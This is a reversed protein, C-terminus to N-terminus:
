RVGEGFFAAETMACLAHYVAIHREQIEMVGQGPVCVTVDCLEALKGGSEGTLGITSLGLSRAVRVANLVNPSNGSTSVAILTDCHTGYGYVQQAYVMEASVDNAIASILASQSSLSIAPLAGQLREALFIGDQGYAEILRARLKDSIPRPQLFGKMLEGVIHDSDAASGGNGCVLLKGRQRYSHCLVEFAKEIEARCGALGPHRRFLYELQDSVNMKM